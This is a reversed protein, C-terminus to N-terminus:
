IMWRSSKYNNFNNNREGSLAGCQDQTLYLNYLSITTSGSYPQDWAISAFQNNDILIRFASAMDARRIEILYDDEDAAISL